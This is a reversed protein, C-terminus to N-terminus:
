ECKRKLTWTKLFKPCLSIREFPKCVYQAHHQVQASYAISVRNAGPSSIRLNLLLVLLLRFAKWIRVNQSLMAIGLAQSQTDLVQWKQMSPMSRRRGTAPYSQWDCRKGQLYFMASNEFIFRGSVIHCNSLGATYKHGHEATITWLWQCSQRKTASRDHTLSSALLTLFFLPPWLGKIIEPRSFWRGDIVWEKSIM